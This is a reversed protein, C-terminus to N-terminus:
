EPAQMSTSPMATNQNVDAINPNGLENARPNKSPPLGIMGRNENSSTVENRSFTDIASALQETPVLKFPNRFYIVKQGQSVATASLFKRNVEDLISTIIPDITENFYYRMETESATGNFIAETLGLQNYFQQTLYKVEELLNSQIPRNLQTIKETGDVYGIGHKNASLQKELEEVRQNAERRRIETKVSYPLQLVLNFADGAFSKDQAEMAALKNILRSLSGNKSNVISFMPNSVIGCLEKQVVIEEHRGTEENYVDVRVHKPYWQTVIGVRLSLIDYSETLVPNGKTQVPVIAAVGNEMLTLVIDRILERGSQDINASYTLRDLLASEMPNQNGTEKDIKVHLIDVMSTDIAIRNFVMDTFESRSYMHTNINHSPSGSGSGYDIIKDPSRFVDWAGKLRSRIGMIVHVGGSKTQICGM